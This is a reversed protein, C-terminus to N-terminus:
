IIQEESKFTAKEIIALVKDKIDKDFGKANAIKARLERKQHSNEILKTVDTYSAIREHNLIYAGFKYNNFRSYFQPHLNTEKNIHVMVNYKVEYNEFFQTRFCM